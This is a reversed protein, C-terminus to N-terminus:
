MKKFLNETPWRTVADAARHLASDIASDPLKEDESRQNFLAAWSLGDWRRVLLSFTGPLSGLHWYNAKGNHNTVRISWGCGYYTEALKGDSDRSVPAAPPAYMAAVSNPKLLPSQRPEDLAAAFRALDLVSAIWAGHADMAELYFGGDPWPVMQDDFLSRIRESSASYYNAEGQARLELQSRGIRMRTIGIPALVNKQMYAEYGLGTLKEIIRGLLCYGFNSYAYRTGPDFDLPRALMYCIIEQPGPPSPVNLAQAIQRPRFMPDFSKDRDWGATHQLLQRVTIAKLRDDRKTVSTSCPQPRLLDFVPADLRLKGKEVLQLIAVATFPKSISAIRFLSDPRAPLRKERDAWGYGQAYVLRRDKVVALTAGPIKRPEMFQRMERDFAAFPNEKSSNQEAAESLLPWGLSALTVVGCFKRRSLSGNANEFKM